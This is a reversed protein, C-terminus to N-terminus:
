SCRPPQGCLHRHDLTGAENVAFVFPTGLGVLADGGVVEVDFRPWLAALVRIRRAYDRALRLSSSNRRPQSTQQPNRRLGMTALDHFLTLKPGRRPKQSRAWSKLQRTM